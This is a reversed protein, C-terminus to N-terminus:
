QNQGYAQMTLTVDGGNLRTCPQGGTASCPRQGDPRERRVPESQVVHVAVHPLPHLIAPVVAVVARRGVARGPEGAITAQANRTATGPITGSHEEAGCGPASAARPEAIWVHTKAHRSHKGLLRGALRLGRYLVAPHRLREDRAMAVVVHAPRRRRSPSKMFAWWISPSDILHDSAFTTGMANVISYAGVGCSIELQDEVM